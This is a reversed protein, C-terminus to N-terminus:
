ETGLIEIKLNGMAKGIVMAQNIIDGRALAIHTPNPFDENWTPDLQRWHGVYAEVWAHYGFGNGPPWYILGAVVHSPIGVARLLAVMLASHEGCDGRKSHLTQLANSFDPTFQKDINEFVWKNIMQAVHWANTEDGIIQKALAIIQPDDSQILPDAALDPLFVKSKIPIKIASPPLQRAKITLILGGSKDTRKKQMDTQIIDNSSIGSLKIRMSKLAKPDDIKKDAKVLSNSLLDFTNDLQKAQTESELKLMIGQGLTNELQNGNRDVKTEVTVGLEPIYGSITLVETPVGNFVFEDRSKVKAKQHIIGTLPPTPEFNSFSFSDGVSIQGNLIKLELFTTSDLFDMPYNFSKEKTQGGINSVVKFSEGDRRGIVNNDGTPSSIILYSSDLEGGPSRYFRSDNTVMKVSTDGMKTEITMITKYCWGSIPSNIKDLGIQVYGVKGGQMYMGYWQTKILPDFRTSDINPAASISLSIVLILSACLVSIRSKM